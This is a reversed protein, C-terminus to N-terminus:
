LTYYYTLSVHWLVESAESAESDPVTRSLVPLPELIGKTTGLESGRSSKLLRKHNFVTLWNESVVLECQTTEM